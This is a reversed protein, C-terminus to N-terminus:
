NPDAGEELLLKTLEYDGRCAWHLPYLPNVLVLIREEDAGDGVVVLGHDKLLKVIEKGNGAWSLHVVGENRLRVGDYKHYFVCKSDEPIARWALSQCCMFNQRAIYGARRLARFAKTLNTASM